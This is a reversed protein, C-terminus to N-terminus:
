AGAALDALLRDYDRRKQVIAADALETPGSPAPVAGYVSCAKLVHIAATLPHEGGLASELVDLAKPALSRLRDTMSVWLEQRRANLGSTFLPTHNVWRSVTPRAVGLAEATETLTRGSSLMDIAALQQVSLNGEDADGNTGIRKM